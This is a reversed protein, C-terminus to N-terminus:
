LDSVKALIRALRAKERQLIEESRKLQTEASVESTKYILAKVMDSYRQEETISELWTQVTMFAYDNEIDSDISELFEETWEMRKEIANVELKVLSDKSQLDSIKKQLFLNLKLEIDSMRWEQKCPADNSLESSVSNRFTILDLSDDPTRPNPNAEAILSLDSVTDCHTSYGIDDFSSTSKKVAAPVPFLEEKTYEEYFNLAAELFAYLLGLTSLRNKPPKLKRFHETCQKVISPTVEGKKVKPIFSRCVKVVHGPISLYNTVLKCARSRMVRFGPTVEIESDIGSFLIILGLVVEVIDNSLHPTSRLEQLRRVTLNKLIETLVHEASTPDIRQTPLLRELVGRLRECNGAQVEKLISLSQSLSKDKVEKDALSHLFENVQLVSDPCINAHVILEKNLSSILKDAENRKSEFFKFDTLVPKKTYSIQIKEKRKASNSRAQRQKFDPSKNAPRSTLVSHRKFAPRSSLSRPLSPTVSSPKLVSVDGRKEDISLDVPKLSIMFAKLQSDLSNKVESGKFPAEPQLEFLDNFSDTSDKKSRHFARSLIKSKAPSLTRPCSTLAQFIPLLKAQAFKILL